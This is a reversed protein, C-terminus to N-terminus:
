KKARAVWWNPQASEFAGSDALRNALELSALGAPSEVLWIRDAIRRAVRAGQAAVAARAAPEDLAAAFTVLVGGPLARARGSEDRLVPSQLPEAVDKLPGASPRLVGSKSATASFDARLADDVVLPRRVDGDIWHHTPAPRKADAAPLPKRLTPVAADRAGAPPAALAAALALAVALTARRRTPEADM